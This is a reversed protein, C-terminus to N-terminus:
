VKRGVGGVSWVPTDDDRPGDPRWEPLYVVGPDLLDLGHFYTEVEAKTRLNARRPGNVQAKDQYLAALKETTEPRLDSVAHAIVVYSDPAIAQRIRDVVETAVEDESVVHLVAVMLVGVPQSLDILGTLAPDALMQDTERMDAQVVATRPNGELLARAHATVVPDNDIYVVRADPAVAQAVEHVNGQTPLGCGVDVFQRIGEGVLYRVSRRLFGRVEHAGVRLEPAVTLAMEAAERDAAFNDKGGLYYDYMRAVNPTSPDFRAPEHRATAEPVTAEV